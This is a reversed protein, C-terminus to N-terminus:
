RSRPIMPATRPAPAVGGGPIPAPPGLKGSTLMIVLIVNLAIIGINLAIGIIAPAMIGSSGHKRVGTLAFVGLGLGGLILLLQFGAIVIGVVPAGRIAGRTCCGLTFAILPAMWAAKAAQASTDASIGGATQTGKAAYALAQGRGAGPLRVGTRFNYGCNTCLVATPPAPTNCVPCAIKEAPADAMPLPPSTTATTATRAGGRPPIPEPLDTLDFEDDAPPPPPAAPPAQPVTVTAGCKCKAKRGGLEPKWKFERGCTTCAFKAGDGEGM